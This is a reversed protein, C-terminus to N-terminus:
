TFSGFQHNSYAILQKLYQEIQVKNSIHKIIFHKGLNISYTKFIKDFFDRQPTTNSIEHLAILKKNFVIRDPYFFYRTGAYSVAMIIGVVIVIVLIALSGLKAITQQDASLDLLSINLLIGLYFIVGLAFFTVIKPIIVRAKLQPLIYIPKQVTQQNAQGPQYM